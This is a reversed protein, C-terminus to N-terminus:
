GRYDPLRARVSTDLRRAIKKELNKAPAAHNVIFALVCAVLYWVGLDVAFNFDYFYNYHKDGSVYVKYTEFPAGVHRLLEGTYQCQGGACQYDLTNVNDSWRVLFVLILLLYIFLKGGTPYFFEVEDM